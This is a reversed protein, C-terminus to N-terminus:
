ESERQLQRILFTQVSALLRRTARDAAQVGGYPTPETVPEVVSFRHSAILRADVTAVLDVELAMDVESSLNSFVQKLYLLKVNLTLEADVAIDPGAVGRFLGSDELMRLLIPELMRGPPAAWRNHAYFELQHPKRFYIMQPGDYGPAATISNLQIDPKGTNRTDSTVSAKAPTAPDPAWDLLYRNMTPAQQM